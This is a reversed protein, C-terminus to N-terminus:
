KCIDVSSIRRSHSIKAIFPGQAPKLKLTWVEEKYILSRGALYLVKSMEESETREILSRSSSPSGGRPFIGDDPKVLDREIM